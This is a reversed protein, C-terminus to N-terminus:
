ENTRGRQYTNKDILENLIGVQVYHRKSEFIADVDECTDGNEDEWTAVGMIALQEYRFDSAGHHEEFEQGREWMMRMLKTVRDIEVQLREESSAM